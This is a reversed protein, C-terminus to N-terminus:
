LILTSHNQHFSLCTSWHFLSSFESTSWMVSKQCFYLLLEISFPYDKWCITCSCKPSAGFYFLYFPFISLKSTMFILLRVFSGTFLICLRAEYQSFNNTFWVDSLSTDLDGFSNELTLLLYRVIWNSFSFFEQVSMESLLVNSSLYACSFITM